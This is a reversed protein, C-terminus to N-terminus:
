ATAALRLSQQKEEPLLYRTGCVKLSGQLDEKEMTPSILAIADEFAQVLPELMLAPFANYISTSLQYHHKLQGAGKGFLSRIVYDKYVMYFRGGQISSVGPNTEQWQDFRECITSEAQTLRARLTDDPLPLVKNDLTFVLTRHAKWRGTWHM